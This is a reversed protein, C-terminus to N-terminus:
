KTVESAFSAWFARVAAMVGLSIVARRLALSAYRPSFGFHRGLLHCTDDVLDDPDLARMEHLVNRDLLLMEGANVQVEDDGLM